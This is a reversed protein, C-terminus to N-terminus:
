KGSPTLTPAPAFAPPQPGDLVSSGVAPVAAAKNNPQVLAAYLPGNAAALVIREAAEPPVALTYLNSGPNTAPQASGPSSVPTTGIALVEANQYFFHAYPGTDLGKPAPFVSMLDIKDGPVILGAVAHAPDLSVTIAVDGAPVTIGSLSTSAAQPQVFQNSVLIQGAAIASPAVKGKIATVNTIATVPLFKRPITEQRVLGSAIAADGTTGAPIDKAAVYDSVGTVKSNASAQAHHVVAVSMVAAVAGLAVAGGIMFARRDPM